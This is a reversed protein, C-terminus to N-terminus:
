RKKRKAEMKRRQIEDYSESIDAVIKDNLRIAFLEDYPMKRIAKHKLPDGKALSHILPVDDLINLKNIGAQVMEPKPPKYLYRKELEAIKEYERQIWIIFELKTRNKLRKVRKFNISKKTTNIILHIAEDYQGSNLLKPVDNILTEYPLKTLDNFEVGFVKNTGKIYKKVFELDEIRSIYEDFRM